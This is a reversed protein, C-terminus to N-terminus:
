LPFVCPFRPYDQRHLSLPPASNVHHWDQARGGFSQKARSSLKGWTTRFCGNQHGRPKSAPAPTPEPKLPLPPPVPAPAWMAGAITHHQEEVLTHSAVYGGGGPLGRVDDPVGQSDTVFDMPLIDCFRMKALRNLFREGSVSTPIMHNDMMECIDFQRIHSKRKKYQGEVTEALRVDLLFFSTDRSRRQSAPGVGPGM